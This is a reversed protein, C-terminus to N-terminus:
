LSDYHETARRLHEKSYRRGLTEYLTDLADRREKLERWASRVKSAAARDNFLDESRLIRAAGLARARVEAPLNWVGGLVIVNGGDEILAGNDEPAAQSTQYHFWALRADYLTDYAKSVPAELVKTGKNYVTLNM